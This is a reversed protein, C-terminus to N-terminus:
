WIWAIDGWPMTTVLKLSDRAAQVCINTSYSSQASLPRPHTNQKCPDNTLHPTSFFDHLLPIRNIMIVSNYYALQLGIQSIGMLNDADAAGQPLQEDVPNNRKWEELEANLEKVTAHVEPSSKTLSKASYLKGYIRSKIVTLRCLQRFFPINCNNDASSTYGDDHDDEPLDVDFDDVDQAPANGSRICISHLIM